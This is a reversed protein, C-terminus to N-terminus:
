KVPVGDKVAETIKSVVQEDNKVGELIAVLDGREPGPQVIREELHGKIVAFLHTSGSENLLAAKPVTPLTQDPLTVYANAFMGPKLVHDPNKM